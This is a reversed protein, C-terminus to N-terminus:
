NTPRRCIRRLPVKEEALDHDYRILFICRCGRIDHARRQIQLIHADYHTAHDRREQFCLVRDGVAVKRCEPPELPLSRKRVATKINVWEDEEAGFGVFRVRVEPEGSHLVRHALFTEVDYWAGDKTSRAEFELKFIDQVKEGIKLIWYSYWFVHKRKEKVMNSYSEPATSSEPASNSQDDNSPVFEEKETSVVPTSSIQSEKELRKCQFWNEVQEWQLAAKGSHGSNLNFKKTVKEYFNQSLSQDVAEVFLKEMQEIESQKFCSGEKKGLRVRGM